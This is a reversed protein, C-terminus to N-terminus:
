SITISKRRKNRPTNATELLYKKAMTRGKKRRERFSKSLVCFLYLISSLFFSLSLSLFISLCQNVHYSQKGGGLWRWFALGARRAVPFKNKNRRSRKKRETKGLISRNINAGVQIVIKESHFLVYVYLIYYLSVFVLYFPLINILFTTSHSSM